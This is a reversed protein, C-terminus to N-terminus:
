KISDTKPDYGERFALQVIPCSPRTDYCGKDFGLGQNCNDCTNICSDIIPNIGFEMINVENFYNKLFPTGKAVCKEPCM